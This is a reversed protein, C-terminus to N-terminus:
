ILSVKKLHELFESFATIEQKYIFERRERKKRCEKKDFLGYHISSPQFNEYNSRLHSLLAGLAFKRNMEPLAIKRIRATLFLAALLGTAASEVYGEVGTIQGALYINDRGNLYLTSSLILPANVFTNRHVSGYRLFLAKELGPLTRFIREQEKFTLKTQFGVMNFATKEIDESRLQVVAFPQFGFIEKDFGVPKMPGYALCLPGREAMVEIPMCGEYYLEKEFPRLTVKEAKLLEDVFAFYQDESLPINLYDADGKNYRSARVLKTMDLSNGDIIPAIADYFYLFNDGVISSLYEAFAPSTLPGTAIIYFDYGQPLTVVEQSFVKLNNFSLLKNTVLKSLLIRDVALSLGAPVRCQYASTIIISDLAELEKKLMYSPSGEALSKLSNSCVLEAYTPLKHAETFKTPKM